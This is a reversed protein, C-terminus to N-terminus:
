GTHLCHKGDPSLTGVYRVCYDPDKDKDYNSNQKDLSPILEEIPFDSYTFGDVDCESKCRFARPELVAMAAILINMGGAIAPIWLILANIQQWRGFEGLELLINDYDM